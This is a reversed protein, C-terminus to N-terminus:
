KNAVFFLRKFPYIIKGNQQVKYDVRCKELVENEFASILKQNPLRNLFSRMGTTRYWDILEQHTNLQHYYTTEWIEIESSLHALTNYYYEASQYNLLNECGKTYQYWRGEASTLMLAQHLPSENNAPVQVALAGNKKVINFLHPILIDHDPLWQLTANSFVIDFSINRDLRSVDGLKWCQQPFDARAKQIMEASNDIGVIEATPWRQCLIQTSNGPGCGLDVISEPHETKIRSVLDISPQTRESKFELYQEPNWDTM